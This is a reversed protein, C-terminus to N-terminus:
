SGDPFGGRHSVMPYHPLAGAPDSIMAETLRQYPPHARWGGPYPVLGAAILPQQGDPRAHLARLAGALGDLVGDGFRARWAEGIGDAVRQYADQAQLGRPTLHVHRGRGGAPGPGTVAYGERELLGASLSAAERSIGARGPLDRVAVGGSSVVRLVNASVPLSLATGSEFEARFSMLARSLLTPLDTGPVRHEPAVAPPERGPEGPRVGSVPLFAPWTDAAPGAVARLAGTLQGIVDAGFRERWREGIVAALPAFVEQAALGWRTPRVIGDRRSPAPRTGAPDPSVTVYGWRELGALNVLPVLDAVDRLPVGSAPLFRLFNAWMALSVLWPGRGSHAAPGRTTRHPLQHESENDFEITFAVLAQSLLAPFGLDAVLVTERQDRRRPKRAQRAPAAGPRPPAPQSPAPAPAPAPAPPAPTGAAPKGPTEHHRGRTARILLAKPRSADEQGGRDPRAQEARAQEPRAQEARTM